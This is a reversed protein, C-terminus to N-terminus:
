LLSTREGNFSITQKFNEYIPHEDAGVNEVGWFKQISDKLNLDNEIKHTINDVFMTYSNAINASVFKSKM